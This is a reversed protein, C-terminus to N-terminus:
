KQTGTLATAPAADAQKDVPRLRVVRLGKPRCERRECAVGAKKLPEGCCPCRMEM